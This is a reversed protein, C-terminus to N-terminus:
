GMFGLVVDHLTRVGWKFGEIPIREDPAHFLSAFDLTAPLMVPTFGMYRTGLAAYASGNTFGPMLYPAVVAGPDMKAMTTVIQQYLPNNQPTAHGRHGNTLEVTALEGVADQVKAKM